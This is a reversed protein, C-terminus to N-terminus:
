INVRNNLFRGNRATKEGYNIAAKPCRHLCALCTECQPKEWVPKGDSMKITNRPCVKKCLGCSNCDNNVTFKTTKRGNLFLPYLMATVLRPFVGKFNNFDGTAKEEILKIIEDTDKEAKNLREVIESESIIKSMPVYNDVTKVGFIANIKILKNILKAANGTMGGSNLVAFTYNDPKLPINMKKLFETTIIPIGM